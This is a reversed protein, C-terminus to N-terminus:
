GKIRSSRAIQNLRTGACDPCSTFTVVREVFARVHPQMADVDKTLYTRGPDAPHRRRLDPQRRRRQGQSPGQVAPRQARAQHVPQDAQRSRLLGCGRLHPRSWGDMSYGPITLAGENLSKSDDYLATLDFDTVSGMGECRSCM